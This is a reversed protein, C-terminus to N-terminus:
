AASSKAETGTKKPPIGSQAVTRHEDKETGYKASTDRPETPEHDDHVANEDGIARKLPAMLAIMAVGTAFSIGALMVFFSTKSMKEWYTGLYGSLYNGFFSSVFWMGMMLSVIRPPSIKTVLSLGVPSLYLEGVTLLLTCGVLWWMSAMAGSEYARAGGIMVLFSVGLLMCGIAMKAVSSPEKGQEAQRRWIMNIFPTFAFIMFPNVSQFWSAPIEWALFHRDTNGDAWLALTNGQQEYVAWFSINLACLVLLAIVRNWDKKSFPAYQVKKEESSTARKMVNDPALLRQGWAYVALGLLMGIGASGFGWSWSVNEGLYGCIFPSLFAGLNIGVYFIMFARDRRPDGKPYLNGVQTSINPKFFGNGIILLLLAPYFLSENMMMFEGAAMIIGGVFVSKRQGIFKDAIYGGLVPTLYVFGTYLGYVQSSQQQTTMPGFIHGLFNMIAHHGVVKDQWEPLFLHKVMYYILLARMGYFCFREWMETFFLAYLGLPHEGIHPQKPVGPALELVDPKAKEMVSM